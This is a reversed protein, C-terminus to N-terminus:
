LLLLQYYHYSYYYYYCYYIKPAGISHAMQWCLSVQHCCQCLVSFFAKVCTCGIPSHSCIIYDHHYYHYYYYIFMHVPSHSRHRSCSSSFEWWCTPSQWWAPPLVPWFCVFCCKILIFVPIVCFFSFVLMWCWYTSYSVGLFCFKIVFDEEDM